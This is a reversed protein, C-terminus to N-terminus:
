SLLVAYQCRVKHRLRNGVANDPFIIRDTTDTRRDKQILQDEATIKARHTRTMDVAQRSRFDFVLEILGGLCVCM